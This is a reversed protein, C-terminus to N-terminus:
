DSVVIPYLNIDKIYFKLVKYGKSAFAAQYVAGLAPAEDTNLNKALETKQTAKLLNEQVKPIRTGGGVLVVASVEEPNMESLLFADNVVAGIRDFLDACMEEFEKRTVALKFDVDDMLGEIQATHDANASLVSKVRDAEKYIKVTAKPNTFVDKKTREYFAKALHKALRM